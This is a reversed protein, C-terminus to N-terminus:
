NWIGYDVGIYNRGFIKIFDSESWNYHEMAIKQIEQKLELDKERYFHVGERSLNHHRGCLWVKLGYKESIKRNATGYFVHHSHLNYDTGCFYCKKNTQIISKM